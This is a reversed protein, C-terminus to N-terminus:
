GARRMRHMWRGYRLIAGWRELRRAPEGRGFATHHRWDWYPGRARFGSIVFLRALQYLGGLYDCVTRM